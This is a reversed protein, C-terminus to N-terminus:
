RSDAVQLGMSDVMDHLENWSAMEGDEIMADGARELQQVALQLGLKRAASRCVQKPVKESVVGDIEEMAISGPALELEERFVEQSLTGSLVLQKAVFRRTKVPYHKVKFETLTAINFKQTGQRITRGDEETIEVVRNARGLFIQAIELHRLSPPAIISTNSLVTSELQAVENELSALSTSPADHGYLPLDSIAPVKSGPPAQQYAWLREFKHDHHGKQRKSGSKRNYCLECFDIDTCHTCRWRAAGPVIPRDCNDCIFTPESINDTM